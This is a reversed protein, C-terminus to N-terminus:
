NAKYDSFIEDAGNAFWVKSLNKISGHEAGFFESACFIFNGGCFERDLMSNGIEVKIFGTEENGAFFISKIAWRLGLFNRLFEFAFNGKDLFGPMEDVVFNWFLKEREDVM